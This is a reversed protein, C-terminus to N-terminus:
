RPTYRILVGGARQFTVTSSAVRPPQPDPAFAADETTLLVEAASEDPVARGYDVVGAGRLSAVVVFTESDGRRRVVTGTGDTWAEGASCDSAQLAVHSARLSLLTSHLALSAAHQPHRREEWRLKSREFTEPAQPDPVDTQPDFGPFDKFERRRGETVARGLDAELDTFFLFPTSASWEQGMFLLPTMPATLLLTTAARWAAPEIRHHLRDGIARNGVQDHNQLCIVSHRMPVRSADTGRCEGTRKTPQGTYLWGQRITRVLEEETGEFDGYYGHADGATMRRVIHHFDDAWIGDLGWGGRDRPEVIASLNRHDEAHIAVPWPVEHRAADALEAVVHTPSSDILAHTADLRLGDLHYERVWHAANDIVFRRVLASECGDLNVAGGWPTAHRQTIYRPMFEGLYAGEPGLHNYVVDIMVGLGHAHADNVFARLDDPRGYARAPAFLAVGDYGWNREGAFDAVPLLEVLTVGLDRLSPLKRRAADFTGEPTFTGVHLEYVVAEGARRGPWTRDSWPFRTPDVIESAGHVGEPQFRSAPDPRLEGNDLRYSYRDGPAAGAIALEFIGDTLNDLEYSGRAHGSHLILEVRRARAASGRAGGIPVRFRTGGPEPLAGFVPATM